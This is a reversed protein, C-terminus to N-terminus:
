AVVDAISLITVAMGIKVGDRRSGGWSMYFKHAEAQDSMPVDVFNPRFHSTNQSSYQIRSTTKGQTDTVLVQRLHRVNKLDM